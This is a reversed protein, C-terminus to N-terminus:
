KNGIRRITYERFGTVVRMFACLKEDLSADGTDVPLSSQRITVLKEKTAVIIINKITVHTIIRPSIQQNGRGFVHGQGGIPTILIKTNGRSTVLQHLLTESVDSAVLKKNLIVDVGILTNKINLAGMIHATTTGPGIVYLVDKEMTDLIENAISALVKDESRSRKKVGQIRNAIDPVRMYGYLRSSVRGSRFADEDLDMVETTRSKSIRGSVFQEAVSGAGSPHVAFVGSHIKVGAPIGLVVTKQGVGAFVNRATGDGGAFLLLDVGMDAMASAAATTDEGTTAEKRSLNLLRPSFGASFVAHEGMDGSCTIIEFPYDKARHLIKLAQVAREQAKPSAGLAIAKEQIEKGDSGKLGVSGGLGAVPNVIVGIKKM